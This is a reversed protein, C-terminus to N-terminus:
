AEAQVRIVLQDVSQGQCFDNSSMTVKIRTM